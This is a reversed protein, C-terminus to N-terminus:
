SFRNHRRRTLLGETSIGLMLQPPAQGPHDQQTVAHKHRAPKWCHQPADRSDPLTSHRLMPMSSVSSPTHQSRARCREPLFDTHLRRTLLGPLAIGLKMHLPPQTPTSSTKSHADTKRAALLQSICEGQM